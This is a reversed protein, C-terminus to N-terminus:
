ATSPEAGFPMSAEIEPLESVTFAAESRFGPAVSDSLTVASSPLLLGPWPVTVIEIMVVWLGIGTAFSSRTGSALCPTALATSTSAFSKLGNWPPSAGSSRKPACRCGGPDWRATTCPSLTDTVGAESKKPVSM